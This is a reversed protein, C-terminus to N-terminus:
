RSKPNGNINEHKIIEKNEIVLRPNKESLVEFYEEDIVKLLKKKIEPFYDYFCRSLHHVDSSLYDVAKYKLFFKITKQAEKGYVGLISAYNGQFIIDKDLYDFLKESNEQLYTYREPHAIVVRFGKQKVNHLMKQVIEQPLEQFMPLEILAYQSDALTSIQSNELLNEINQGIFIENGLLLKTSINEQDAMERLNELIEKNQSKTNIYAPEAYHPTLCITDFGVKKAKKLIAISEEISKSGDDVEPLIHCHLDVM